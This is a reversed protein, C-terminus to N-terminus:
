SVQFVVIDGLYILSIQTDGLYIATIQTDGIYMCKVEIVAGVSQM